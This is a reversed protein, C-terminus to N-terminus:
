KSGDRRNWAKKSKEIGCHACTEIIEKTHVGCYECRVFYYIESSGRKKESMMQIHKDAANCFPCPKLDNM